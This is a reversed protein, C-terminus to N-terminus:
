PREGASERAKPHLSSSREPSREFSREYPREFSRELRQRALEDLRVPLLTTRRELQRGEIMEEVEDRPRAFLAASARRVAEARARSGPPLPETRFTFTQSQGGGVCPRCAAQFAALHSLDYASLDPDFHREL